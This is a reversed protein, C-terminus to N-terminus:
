NRQQWLTKFAFFKNPYNLLDIIKDACEEKTNNFTDVTIDYTDKPCLKSLLEEANGIQRNGREKERRRLEDLPCTVHVFLVDRDHLLSVCENMTDLRTITHDKADDTLFVHDVIVDIGIDSFTKIAHHFGTLATSVTQNPNSKIFKEPGILFFTDVSLLYFPTPLREQLTKALTSKGVSSTGNLWIIKGKKM